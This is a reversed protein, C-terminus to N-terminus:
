SGDTLVDERASVAAATLRVTLLAALRGPGPCPVEVTVRATTADLVVAVKAGKPAAAAAVAAADGDGRAAARAGSRAADVCRIQAGAAVVGWILMAALLVLAPLAVATEATVTGADPSRGRGARREPRTCPM